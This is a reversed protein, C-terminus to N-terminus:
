VNNFSGNNTIISNLKRTTDLTYGSGGSRGTYGVFAADTLCDVMDDHGHKGDRRFNICEEIFESAFENRIWVHNLELQDRILQVRAVKGKVNGANPLAINTKKDVKNMKSNRKMTKLPIGCQNCIQKTMLGGSIAEIYFPIKKEYENCWRIWTNSITKILDLGELKGRYMDLLYLRGHKTLAWLCAVTYDAQASDVMATDATAFIKKIDDRDPEISFKHFFERKFLDGEDLMPANQYMCSFIRPRGIMVKLIISYERIPDGTRTDKQMYLERDFVPVRAQRFEGKMHLMVMGSLDNSHVRQQNLIIKTNGRARSLVKGMFDNWDSEYESAARGEEQPDDLMLLGGTSKSNVFEELEEKMIEKINYKNADDIGIENNMFKKDAETLKSSETGGASAGLFASGYTRAMYNYSKTSDSFAWQTVKTRDKKRLMHGFLFGFMEHMCTKRIREANQTLLADSASIHLIVSDKNRALEYELLSNTADTKGAGSFINIITIKEKTDGNLVDVASTFLPMLHKLPIFKQQNIVLAKITYFKLFDNKIHEGFARARDAFRQREIPAYHKSNACAYLNNIRRVCDKNWIEVMPDFMNFYNILYYDFNDRDLEFNKPFKKIVETQATEEIVFNKMREAYEEKLNKYNRFIKYMIKNNLKLWGLRRFFDGEWETEGLQFDEFYETFAALIDVDTDKKHFDFDRWEKFEKHMM